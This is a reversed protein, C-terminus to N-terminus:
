AGDTDWHQLRMWITHRRIDRTCTSAQWGKPWNDLVQQSMHPVDDDCILTHPGWGWGAARM